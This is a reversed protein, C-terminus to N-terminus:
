RPSAPAVRAWDNIALDQPLREVQELTAILEDKKGSRFPNRYEWVIDKGPTVEIARGENPTVILTNGNLLRQIFGGSMSYFEQGKAEGYRWVIQQTFPDVELARSQGVRMTGFNDFMLIRGSPLLRPRHQARWQGSLAWVIKEQAPDLIAIVGLAHSSVLLNGERYNPSAASLSGDFVQVTNAHLLDGASKMPVLEPGYESHEFARLLSIKKVLKGDPSLITVFDEIVPEDSNLEPVLKKERTLVYITGARDVSVDHHAGNLAAWKLQSRSDIRAIGIYEWIVLLDGGPLLLARRWFKDYGRNEPDAALDPWARRANFAWRHREVGKMDMLRAESAHASVCLNWGAAARSADYVTVGGQGNAPDYGSLYPIQMLAGVADRQALASAGAAPRFRRTLDEPKGKSLVGVLQPYPFWKQRHLLFGYAAAMALLAVLALGRLVKRL